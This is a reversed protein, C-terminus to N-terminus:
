AETEMVACRVKGISIYGDRVARADSGEPIRDNPTPIGKCALMVIGDADTQPIYQERYMSSPAVTRDWLIGKACGSPMAPLNVNWIEGRSVPRKLLAELIPLLYPEGQPLYDDAAVSFAIAPIDNRVAEFAAGLTGSYAIDYGANYGNNIGSLVLDPKEPLLYELAVKVCDVPTGGVQWASQVPAPFDTIQKVSLLERLTLKQSMASCQEAPAVVWVQGLASAARALVSIGPAGISDDNVILINM